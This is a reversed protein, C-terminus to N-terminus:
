YNASDRSITVWKGFYLIGKLSVPRSLIPDKLFLRVHDFELSM